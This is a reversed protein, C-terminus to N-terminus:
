CLDWDSFETVDDSDVVVRRCLRKEPAIFILPLLFFEEPIIGCGVSPYGTRGGCGTFTCLLFARSLFLTFCTLPPNSRRLHWMGEAAFCLFIDFTWVNFCATSYIWLRWFISALSSSRPFGQIEVVDVESLGFWSYSLPHFFSSFCGFDDVIIILLSCKCKM